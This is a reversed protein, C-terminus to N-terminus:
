RIRCAKRQGAELSRLTTRIGVQRLQQQIFQIVKQGTTNNYGSWLVTEFGQPYGAEKLLERAKKPDYPWPGLKTAFEFVEPVVGTVPRAYGSFAVKALAEKNIAYNIAQRVRVDTFPKQLNNIFLYRVIVSPQVLIDIKPDNQLVKIQEAPMPHAFQAEGTRVMAARTSNEVVPRWLIGDLKPLGAVRYNPNKVVYLRESPNYDKLVYPGTGCANFAVDKGSKLLSPCVMQVTGNSLRSLFTGLPHKLTIRVTLSASVEVKEIPTFYTRRSLHNAPDLLRDINLKVAEADLTTGDHFKVNPRLKITYVLGDPSTEYSEALQPVPKMNQDFTFLGEYFSKVVTRSLMDTADYPDLTTFGSGVAVTIEEASAPQFALGTAALCLALFTARPKM